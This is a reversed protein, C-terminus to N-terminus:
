PPRHAFFPNALPNPHATPEPVGYFKRYYVNEITYMICVYLMELICKFSACINRIYMIKFIISLFYICKFSACINRIYM